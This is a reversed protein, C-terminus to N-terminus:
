RLNYWALVDGGVAKKELNALEQEPTKRDTCGAIGLALSFIVLVSVWVKM